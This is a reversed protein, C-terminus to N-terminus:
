SLQATVARIARVFHILKISTVDYLMPLKWDQETDIIPGLKM